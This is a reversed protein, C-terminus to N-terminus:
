NGHDDFQTKKRKKFYLNFIVSLPISYEHFTMFINFDTATAIILSHCLTKQTIQIM